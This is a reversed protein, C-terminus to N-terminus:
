DLRGVEFGDRTQTILVGDGTDLPAVLRGTLGLVAAENTPSHGVVLARGEEPLADLVQGLAQGLLRTESDVLDPDVERIAELDAGRGAAKSAAKWRDEVSSRLAPLALVPEDDQGAAHRLIEVTQNARAAGTSAFVAYPPHLGTRGVAEATMIGDATLTDGDNDTHRRIELYRM